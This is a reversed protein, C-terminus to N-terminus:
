QISLQEVAWSIDSFWGGGWFFFLYIFLDGRCLDSHHRQNTSRETSKWKTASLSVVCIETRRELPSLTYESQGSASYSQFWMWIKGMEYYNGMPKSQVTSYSAISKQCFLDTLSGMICTHLWLWMSVFYYNYKQKITSKNKLNSLDM